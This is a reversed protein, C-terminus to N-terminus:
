AISDRHSVYVSLSLSLSLSLSFSFFFFVSHTYLVQRQVSDPRWLWLSFFLLVSPTCATTACPRPCLSASFLRPHALSATACLRPSTGCRTTKSARSRCPHRRDLHTGAWVGANLKILFPDGHDSLASLANLGHVAILKILDHRDKKMCTAPQKSSSLCPYCAM